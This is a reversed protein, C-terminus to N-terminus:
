SFNVFATLGSVADAGTIIKIRIARAVPVEFVDFSKSGSDCNSIADDIGVFSEGDSSVELSARVSGSETEMQISFDGTLTTYNDLRIVVETTEDNAPIDLNTAIAKTYIKKNM